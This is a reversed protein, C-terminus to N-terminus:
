GCAGREVLQFPGVDGEVMPGLDVARLLKRGLGLPLANALCLFRQDLKHHLCTRGRALAYGNPGPAQRKPIALQHPPRDPRRRSRRVRAIMRSKIVPLAPAHDAM